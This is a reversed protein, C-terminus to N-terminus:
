ATSYTTTTTTTAAAGTNRCAVSESPCSRCVIGRETRETEKERQRDGEEKKEGKKWDRM